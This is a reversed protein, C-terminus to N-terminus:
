GERQWQMLLKLDFIGRHTKVFTTRVRRPMSQIQGSLVNMRVGQGKNVYKQEEYISYVYYVNIADKKWIPKENNFILLSGIQLGPIVEYNIPHRHIPTGLWDAYDGYFSNDINGYAGTM